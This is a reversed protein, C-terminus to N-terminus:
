RKRSDKRRQKVEVKKRKKKKRARDWFIDELDGLERRNSTLQILQLPLDAALVKACLLIGLGGEPRRLGRQELDGDDKGRPLVHNTIDHYALFDKLELLIKIGDHADGIM